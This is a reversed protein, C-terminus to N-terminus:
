QAAVDYWQATKPDHLFDQCWVPRNERFSTDTPGLGFEVDTDVSVQINELYETGQGYSAVPIIHRTTEDLLGVWAMKMGGYEVAYSCIKPFLETETSCRVIAHNCQSLAAFLNTLRQIKAQQIKHKTIDRITVHLLKKNDIEISTMLVDSFFEVGDLRCSIWDFHQVSAKLAKAIYQSAL